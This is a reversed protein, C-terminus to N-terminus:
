LAAADAAAARCMVLEDAEDRHAAAQEASAPVFGLRRLLGESRFNRAKLVAVFTHVGYQTRLEDLMARVASRGIGQRWHRSALEYAILSVGSPLVTAQVYGALEGSPLRVVWNLWHESGDASGRSELRRYRETLWAESAPPENEFEYIAPDSLVRFMEPAHAAVQPELTCHPALLPRLTPTAGIQM